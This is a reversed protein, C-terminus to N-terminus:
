GDGDSRPSTEVHGWKNLRYPPEGDLAARAKKLQWWLWLKVFELILWVWVMIIVLLAFWTPITFAVDIM